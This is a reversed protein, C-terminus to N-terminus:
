PEDKTKYNYNVSNSAIFSPDIYFPDAAFDPQFTLFSGSHLNIKLRM